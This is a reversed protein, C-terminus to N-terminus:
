PSSPDFRYIATATALIFRDPVPVALYLAGPLHALPRVTHPAGEAAPLLWQFLGQAALGYVRADPTVCLARLGELPFSGRYLVLFTRTDILAIEGNSVRQAVAIGGPLVVRVQILDADDWPAVTAVTRASAPDWAFVLATPTKPPFSDSDGWRYTGGIVRGTAPDCAIADLNQDPVVREHVTHAGTRPDFVTLAGGISCYERWSTMYIREGDTAMGRPRNQHHGAQLLERPNVGYAFPQQPDYELMLADIYIGLYAKGHLSVSATPEGPVRCIMGNSDEWAGTQQDARFANQQSYHGGVIWRDDPVTFYYYSNADPSRGPLQGCRLTDAVPDYIFWHALYGVGVLTREDTGALLTWLEGRPLDDRLPTAVGRADIRCIRGSPSAVGLRPGGPLLRTVLREDGEPVIGAPLGDQEPDSIQYAQKIDMEIPTREFTRTRPDFVIRHKREGLGRCAIRGDALVRFDFLYKGTPDTNPHLFLEGRALDYRGFITHPYTGFYIAGDPAGIADWPMEGEPLRHPLTEWLCDRAIFRHMGGQHTVTYINGDAGLAAGHSGKEHRPVEYREVSGDALSLLFLWNAPGASSYTFCAIRREARLYLLRRTYGALAQTEPRCLLRPAPSDPFENAIRWTM